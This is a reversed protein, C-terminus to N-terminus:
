IFVAIWLLVEKKTEGKYAELPPVPDYDQGFNQFNGV